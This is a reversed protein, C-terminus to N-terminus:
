VVTVVTKVWRTAILREGQERFRYTPGDQVIEVRMSAIGIRYYLSRTSDTARLILGAFETALRNSRMSLGFRWEWVGLHLIAVDDPKDLDESIDPHLSCQPTYVRNPDAPDAEIPDLAEGEYCLKALSTGHLLHGELRIMGGLVDLFHNTPALLGDTLYTEAVLVQATLVGVLRPPILSSNVAIEPGVAGVVSAWSWSPTHSLSFRAASSSDKVRWLLSRLLDGEFLGALYREGVYAQFISAAGALAAFIDSRFTLKRKTYDAVVQLWLDYLDARQSVDKESTAQNLSQQEFGTPLMMKNSVWSVATLRHSIGTVAMPFISSESLTCHMCEWFMQQKAYHLTQPSLLSEQLVWVRFSLTRESGLIGDTYIDWRGSRVYM